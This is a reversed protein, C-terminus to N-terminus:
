NDIILKRGAEIGKRLGDFALLVYLLLSMLWVVGLNFWFTDIRWNGILKVPAYFHANGWRSVPEMFVPDKKRILKGKGKLIKNESNRDLVFDAINENYYEQKLQLLGEDGFKGSMKQYQIDRQAMSESLRGSFFRSLSDLRIGTLNRISDNFRGPYLELSCSLEKFGAEREMYQLENRVIRLNNENQDPDVVKIQNRLSEDLLSQLTPIKYATVYTFYSVKQDLPDFMKEYRNNRFQEVALAEYSWRSTMLNGILPVYERSAINPNLRDFPVITGSLLLQPVLFFPIVIYIAVISDLGSSINLGVMNAFCATTFLILWYSFMMGKIGLIWNGILVYLLMQIASLSFLFLVKSILYSGRSLHLFSERKLIRRDRFIEEASVMMGLFLAVVVSMFLYAVLNPNDAFVYHDGPFYRTLFALIAALLPAELLNIVLYQTNTMRAKLHRGSFILFQRFLNPIRFPNEPIDRRVPSVALSPQIIQRFRSYWDAPNIKRNATLKGYENVTRAEAIQLLQEPNVFGCQTCESENPNAHSSITRFWTIADIPNGFYIPYGGKDLILLKDFLRFLDSSPQHINVMVLRGKLTQEKLLLMVMESDRSSLGSTPEDAFLISPQRILELAINLRKRQGGSIFKNLPDGVKLDRIENLDIDSLMRIVARLLQRHSFDRFCLKANFYLNEFITLEEILLDDQPVFGIVGTLKERDRHLDYGNILISGQHLPLSGNLVNLLTSKGAGSGGMVGILEGSRVTFSFPHLGPINGKFRYEIEQATLEIPAYEPSQLFSSTIDTFYVPNIKQNRIISGHMLFFTQDPVIDHGNLFLEDTGSYRGAFLHVSPIFLILLEGKLHERFISRYSSSPLVCQSEIVLFRDQRGAGPIDGSIFGYCDSKEEPLLNFSQALPEILRLNKQDTFLNRATDEPYLKRFFELYRIFVVLREKQQLSRSIKKSITTINSAVEDSSIPGAEGSQHFGVLEDYLKLYEELEHTNLHQRLYSGLVKKAEGSVVRQSAAALISFLQVLAVLVPESM